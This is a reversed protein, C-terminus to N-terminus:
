RNVKRGSRGAARRVVLKDHSAPAPSGMLRRVGAGAQMAAALQRTDRLVAVQAITLLLAEMADKGKNGQPGGARDLAQKGSNVTLVGLAVPLGTFVSIDALRTTVAHALFEDHRTQGKIICGLAVIGGFAGSEAAAACIPVLEFAGPADAIYLDRVQGGAQKYALVAGQLLRETVTANYRSVVIAV